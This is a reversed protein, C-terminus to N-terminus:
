LIHRGQLTHTRMQHDRGWQSRPPHVCICFRIKYKTYLFYLFLVARCLTLEWKITVLERQGRPTHLM